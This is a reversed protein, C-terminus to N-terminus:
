AEKRSTRPKSKRSDKFADALINRLITLKGILDDVVELSEEALGILPNPEPAVYVPEPLWRRAFRDYIAYSFLHDGQSIYRGDSSEVTSADKRHNFKPVAKVAM